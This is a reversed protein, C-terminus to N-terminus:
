PNARFSQYLMVSEVKQNHAIEAEQAARWAVYQAATQAWEAALAPDDRRDALAPCRELLRAGLWRALTEAGRLNLHYGGDYTDQAYDLGIEDKAALANLYLLDHKAAYDVVWADWEDYWHPALSPAKFLVLQINKEKCIATINDLADIARQGFDYNSLKRPTSIWDFPKVDARMVFGKVSVPQKKFYYRLDERTLENWRDHFRLLPFVYSLPEEKPLVSSRVGQWKPLSLRMGDFVMRNYEEKQPEGYMLCLVSLLVVKPTEHRLTDELMALSHWMLQQANGRIYSPVGHEQWLAIPSINEYVECDGIIVLDNRHSDAYYEATLAGEFPKSMSKPLLLNQVAFFAACFLLTSLIISIIKKM